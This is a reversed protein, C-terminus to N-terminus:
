PESTQAPAIALGNIDINDGLVDIPTVTGDVTFAYLRDAADTVYFLERSSDYSLETKGAVTNVGLGTVLVQRDTLYKDSYKVLKTESTYYDNGIYYVAGDICVVGQLTCYDYDLMYNSYYSLSGAEVKSLDFQFLYFGAVAYLLNNQADYAIGKLPNWTYLTTILTSQKTTFDFRYLDSFSSGQVTYYLCNDGYAMGNVNGGGSITAIEEVTSGPLEPNFSLLADKKGSITYAVSQPSSLDVVTVTFTNTVEPNEVSAITITTTGASVGTIVGTDTVTAIATDASVYTLGTNAANSPRAAASLQVTEGVAVRGASKSMVIGNVKGVPVEDADPVACLLGLYVQGEKISSGSRTYLCIGGLHVVDPGDEGLQIMYMGTSVSDHQSDYTAHLYLRDTTFDYTMQPNYQLDGYYNDGTGIRSDPIDAVFTAAATTKDLTYLKGDTYGSEAGAAYLVGDKDAALAFVRTDLQALKTVTGDDLNVTVLYGYGGYPSLTLGYMTGTTYDMAMSVVQDTTLDLNVKGLTVYDAHNGASIRLFEGKDNYCYFFGDYYEGTRLSYISIMNDTVSTHRLDYDNIELWMDFYGTAYDDANIFADLKGAAEYVRVTITDTFPGGDEPNKNSISVTVTATGVGNFSLNGFRDVTVVDANSTTWTKAQVTPRVPDTLTTLKATGGVLGSVSDGNTIEISKVPIQKTEPENEPITFMATQEVGSKTSVDGIDVITAELRDPDWENPAIRVLYLPSQGSSMCPNWYINGTNYDYTMGAYYWSDHGASGIRTTSLTDADVIYLTSFMDSIVINGDGTVCMAPAIAAGGIDGSFAGLLDVAGTDLDIIGLGGNTLDVCYMRGTNYDFGMNGVEVGITSGIREPQGIVTDAPTKGQTVKSRYLVTATALAGTDDVAHEMQTTYVYGEYYAGGQWIASTSEIEGTFPDEVDVVPKSIQSVKAPLQDSYTVWSFDNDRNKFDSIIYGYIGEQSGVVTIEATTSYSQWAGSYTYTDPDYEGAWKDWVETTATITTTGEGVAKVIGAASVTAVSEDASTWTITNPAANWPSWTTELRKSQGQAMTVQYPSIRLSEPKVGMTFLDSVQDNPVFLCTQGSPGYTGVETCKGTTLDVTYTVCANIYRNGNPTQSHAYWYMTGTNHDYGMSQIVNCGSYNLENVFDTTGIYTCEGYPSVSYLKANSDIGYLQGETTCGLTLLEAGDELGSIQGIEDLYVDGSWKSVWIRFLANYGNDHGDNDTDGAYKWGTAYLTDKGTCDGWPDHAESGNDSYDLAMDYLVWVGPDGISGSQSILTQTGWYSSSPTVLVLDGTVASQAILYGNVYEAAYYRNTSDFTENRPDSLDAKNASFWGGEVVAMDYTECGYLRDKDLAKLVPNSAHDGLDLSIDIETENCAYDALVITMDTGFGTIEYERSIAEGPVNDVEYKGMIIGSENVFIVAAIYQNDLMDLTLYIRGDEDFRLADQLAFANEIVPAEDDLTVDFSYTDDCVDDGDDLWASITYTVRTGDALKNGDADMGDWVEGDQALVYMPIIMGYSQSYYSKSIDMGELEYYVEGTAADVVTFAMKKANRLMGFDIEALPNSYSFASYEDGSKGDRFYPNSGIQSYNTYISIPYCSAENDDDSDLIPADSWDGYFGVFPMQMDVGNEDASETYIFGEVYIGNEFQDMYAKDADSLSITVTVTVSKGAPVTVADIDAEVVGDFVALVDMDVELGACYAVLVSVDDMTVDGDGDVDRYAYHQDEGSIPESGTVDRLLTRADATTIDGDGNFDFKLVSGAVPGRFTVEADLAYPSGGIYAGYVLTETMVSSDLTYTKDSEDDMNHIQFSFTYVGTKDPDDGFEAKPRGESADSNSLYAGSTTADVLNVLGAGQQRPSYELNGNVMVPDATSMILNSAVQRLESGTLEPYNKQLYEALVAAAGTVQPTAMSTGSMTGYYSGSIAPDTASYINGGVGAVEPKLKLDPTVGWSSFDSMLRDTKFSKLDGTCVTLAKESREVMYLGDANSISVCPIYESGDHIQMNIVGTAANNYVVCAIAGANQANIQKEPFSISGRSVLAVKGTVDLGEYDSAEGYGPVAVYELTEGGFNAFFQTMTYTATDRFGIDRGGVTFYLMQAGDNEVSAVSMAASYTSPTGALGTDPNSSLSMDLGTNNGYASNYDNGVAILVQIDTDKFRDMVELMNGDPDVFGAAAGLSLNIADVGLVVCDELAAMITDWAAGGGQMFVQMVILQADPAVGTVTTSDVQNAAAIGAVHTGHDSGAYSNSVNFDLSEYNFAFPIKTNRYAQNLLLTRSANLEDWVAEVDERTLSGETLKDESLPQFSPHDVLIGTDLIAIKMGVGTYGSENLADAGIMTTANATSPQFVDGTDLTMDNPLSYVPAVYVNKVGKMAAIAEKNGYETKVSLGTMGVTYTYGLEFSDEMGFAKTLEWKLSNVTVNQRFRYAQVGVSQSAIEGASFGAALMSDTEMEVIFTVVDDSAPKVSAGTESFRLSDSEFKEIETEATLVDEEADTDEAADAGSAFGSGADPDQVTTNGLDLPGDHYVPTTETNETEVAFVAPLCGIILAAALVLSLIKKMM